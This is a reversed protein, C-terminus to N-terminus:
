GGAAEALDLWGAYAQPDVNGGSLLCVVPGEPPLEQAHFLWAALTTAGSPELVIRAARQARLMATMIETEEVVVVGDLWHRLHRFTLRGLATTRMGDASTRAVQEAPWSVIRDEDLSQRADAAFSPEVGLVTADPRISKVATAVGSALGGGGIPVLVTFPGAPFSGGPADQLQTMDEAIELGVTGQGSIIDRQDFSHIFALGDTEAIEKARAIREESAPGVLIIEAGDGEVGSIKIQPTDSPMVVVARMGLLRAARAVGQGHNGSSATVVGRARQETSLLSLANYAGRLKFAGIPQLNEPKLWARTRGRPDSLLPVGFPLLPTRVIIGRLRDAAARIEDLGVLPEEDLTARLEEGVRLDDSTPHV